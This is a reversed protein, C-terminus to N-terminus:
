SGHVDICSNLTSLIIEYVIGALLEGLFNVRETLQNIYQSTQLVDFSQYAESLRNCVDTLIVSIDDNQNLIAETLFKIWLSGSGLEYAKHDPLTSYAVLINGDKAVREPVLFRGGKGIIGRPQLPVGKDEKDGRCVDFFFLRAMRGLAPHKDPKFQDIIGEIEIEYGDQSCLKGSANGRPRGYQDYLTEGMVGHGSFTFVLRRYSPTYPLAAAENVFKIFEGRMLNKREVVEYGLRKFVEVMKEADKHAGKLTDLKVTCDYNNSVIFAVGPKNTVGSEAM